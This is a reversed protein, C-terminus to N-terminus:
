NFLYGYPINNWWGINNTVPQSTTNNTIYFKFGALSISSGAGSKKLAAETKTGFYGTIPLGANFNSNLSYQLTEVEKGKMGISLIKTEDIPLNEYAQTTSTSNTSTSDKTTNNLDASDKTTNNQLTAIYNQLQPLVYFVVVLGIVIYLILKGLQENKM